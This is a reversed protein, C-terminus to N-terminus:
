LFSELESLYNIKILYEQSKNLKLSYISKDYLMTEKTGINSIEFFNKNKENKIKMKIKFIKDNQFKPIKFQFYNQTYNDLSYDDDFKFAYNNTKLDFPIDHSIFFLYFEIKENNDLKSIDEYGEFNFTIYYKTNISTIVPKSFYFTSTDIISVCNSNGKENKKPNYNYLCIILSIEKNNLLNNKVNVLLDSFLDEEGNKSNFQFQFSMQTQNVKEFEKIEIYEDEEQLSLIHGFFLFIILFLLNSHTKM